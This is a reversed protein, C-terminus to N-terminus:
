LKEGALHAWGNERLDAEQVLIADKEKRIIDEKLTKHLLEWFSRQAAVNNPNSRAAEAPDEGSQTTVLAMISPSSASSPPRSLYSVAYTVKGAGNAIPHYWLGNPHESDQITQM